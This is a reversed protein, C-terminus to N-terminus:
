SDAPDVGPPREITERITRMARDRDREIEDVSGSQGTGPKGLVLFEARYVGVPGFGL